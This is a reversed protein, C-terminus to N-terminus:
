KNLMKKLRNRVTKRTPPYEDKQLLRLVEVTANPHNAIENRFYRNSHGTLSALIHPPTNPNDVARSVGTLDGHIRLFNDPMNKIVTDFIEPPFNPNKLVATTIRGNGTDSKALIALSESPTNPNSALSIRVGIYKDKALIALVEPPTDSNRAVSDRVGRDKDKALITFVEPPTNRNLALASRVTEDQDKALNALVKPPTNPNRAVASRVREDEDNALIVFVKPPTNNERSALINRIGVDKDKTFLVLLEPTTDPAIAISFRTNWDLHKLLIAFVETATGDHEIDLLRSIVSNEGGQTLTTVDFNNKMVIDIIEQPDMFMEAMGIGQIVAETDGSRLLGTLQSKMNDDLGEEEQEAIYKQFSEMILKMKKIERFEESPDVFTTEHLAM